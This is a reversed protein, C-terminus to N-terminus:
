WMFLREAAANVAVVLMALLVIVQTALVTWIPRDFRLYRRFAVIMRYMFVVVATVMVLGAVGAYAEVPDGFRRTGTLLRELVVAAVLSALLLNALLTVDGSYVVCRALHVPRLRAQRMSIRFIMLAALTLAPWAVMVGHAFVIRFASGSRLALRAASAFTPQPTFMDIVQQTTPRTTAGPPLRYYFQATGKVIAANYTATFAQRQALMMDWQHKVAWAAVTLPALAGLLTVIIAYILLRRPRSPQSPLLTSWFARPRLHGRVTRVISWVNREPHHEFLYQHLRRGPDRLEDWDFAYGCEPCRPDILGRLDYECLPCYVADETPPPAPAPATM